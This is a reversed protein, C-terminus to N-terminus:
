GITWKPTLVHNGVPDIRTQNKSITFAGMLQSHFPDIYNRVKHVGIFEAPCPAFTEFAFQVYFNPIIGSTQLYIVELCFFHLATNFAM